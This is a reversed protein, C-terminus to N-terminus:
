ALHRSIIWFSYDLLFLALPIICSSYDLLSLGLPLSARFRHVRRRRRPPSSRAARPAPSSPRRRPPSSRAARPPRPLRPSSAPARPTVCPPHPSPNTVCPPHPPSLAGRSFARRLLPSEDGERANARKARCAQCSVSPVFHMM